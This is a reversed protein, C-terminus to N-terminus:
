KRWLFPKKAAAWREYAAEALYAHEIDELSREL